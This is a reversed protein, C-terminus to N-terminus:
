VNTFTNPGVKPKLLECLKLVPFVIVLVFETIKIEIKRCQCFKCLRM